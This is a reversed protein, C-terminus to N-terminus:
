MDADNIHLKFHLLIKGNQNAHTEKMQLAFNHLAKKMTTIKPSKIPLAHVQKETLASLHGVTKIDKSRM